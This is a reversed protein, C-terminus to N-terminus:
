NMFFLVFFFLTLIQAKLFWNSVERIFFRISLFKLSVLPTRLLPGYSYDSLGITRYDSLHKLSIFSKFFLKALSLINTIEPYPGNMQIRGDFYSSIIAYRQENTWGRAQRLLRSYCPWGESDRPIFIPGVQRRFLCFFM